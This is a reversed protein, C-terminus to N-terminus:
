LQGCTSVVVVEVQPWWSCSRARSGCRAQISLGVVGHGGVFMVHCGLLNGHVHFKSSPTPPSRDNTLSSSPDWYCTDGVGILCRM